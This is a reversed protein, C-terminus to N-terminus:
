RVNTTRLQPRWNARVVWDESGSIAESSHRRPKEGVRKWVYGTFPLVIDTKTSIWTRCVRGGEFGFRSSVPAGLLAVKPPTLRM